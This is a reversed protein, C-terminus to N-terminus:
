IAIYWLSDKKVIWIFDTLVINELQKFLVVIKMNQQHVNQCILLQHVDIWGTKHTM